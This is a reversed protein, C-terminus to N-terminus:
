KEYAPLKDHFGLDERQNKHQAQTTSCMGTLISILHRLTQGVINGSFFATHKGPQCGIGGDLAHTVDRGLLTSYEVPLNGCQEHVELIPAALFFGSLGFLEFPALPSQRNIARQHLGHDIPKRRVGGHPLKRAANILVHILGFCPLLDSLPASPSANKL